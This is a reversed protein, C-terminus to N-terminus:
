RKGAPPLRLQKGPAVRDNVLNNAEMIATVTTGWRQALAALTEGPMVVIWGPRAIDPVRTVTSPSAPAASPTVPATPAVAKAAPTASPKSTTAPSTTKTAAPAAAAPKPTPATSPAPKAREVTSARERPPAPEVSTRERNVGGGVNGVNPLGPRFTIGVRHEGSTNGGDLVFAYDMWLNGAGAGMGFAPGSTTADSPAGLALRYGARVAVRDRWTWEGGVRVSNYYARPAEFDANLRLGREADTWSVGGGYVRPLAYSVGPYHMMAGLGRAAIAVGVKGAEARIGADFSMGSGSTGALSEHVWEAGVGAIVYRGLPQALSAGLALDNASLTGTPNNAADRGELDGERHFLAHLGWRTAANGFRGGGALWDQTAGGPLPAHALSFTLADVRALSAVNWSAAALDNGSALTAGAMSLVSAGTGIALFTGAATGADEGAAHAPSALALAALLSGAIARRSM